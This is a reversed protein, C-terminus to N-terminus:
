GHDDARLFRGPLEGDLEISSGGIPGGVIDIVYTPYELHITLTEGSVAWTGSTADNALGNYTFGAIGGDQFDFTWEDGGSDVGGWSTGTLDVASETESVDASGGPAPSTGGFCATLSAALLLSAAVAAITRITTM